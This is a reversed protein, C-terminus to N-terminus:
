LRQLLCRCLLPDFRLSCLTGALVARRWFLFDRINSQVDRRVAQKCSMVLHIANACCHTLDSVACFVQQLVRNDTIPRMACAALRAKSARDVVVCSPAFPADAQTKTPINKGM